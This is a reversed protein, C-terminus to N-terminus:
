CTSAQHLMQINKGKLAAQFDEALCWYFFPPQTKLKITKRPFRITSSSDWGLAAGTGDDDDDNDNDDDEDEDDDM